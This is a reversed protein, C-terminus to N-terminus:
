IVLPYDISANLFYYYYMLEGRSGPAAKLVSRLSPHVPSAGKLLGRRSAKLDLPSSFDHIKVIKINICWCSHLVFEWLVKCMDIDTYVYM